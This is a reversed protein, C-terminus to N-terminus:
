QHCWSVAAELMISLQEHIHLLSGKWHMSTEYLSCDRGPIFNSHTFLALMCEKYFQHGKSFKVIRRHTHESRFQFPNETEYHLWADQQVRIPECFFIGNAKTYSSM